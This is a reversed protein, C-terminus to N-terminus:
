KEQNELSDFLNKMQDWWDGSGIHWACYERVIEHASIENIYNDLETSDEPCGLRKRITKLKGNVKLKEVNTMKPFNFPHFLNSALYLEVAGLLGVRSYKDGGVGM